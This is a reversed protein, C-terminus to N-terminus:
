AYYILFSLKNDHWYLLQEHLFLDNSGLGEIDKVKMGASLTSLRM